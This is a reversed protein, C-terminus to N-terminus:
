DQEEEALEKTHKRLQPPKDSIEGDNQGDDDETPNISDKTQLSGLEKHGTLKLHPQKLIM